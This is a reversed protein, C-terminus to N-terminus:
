LVSGLNHLLQKLLTGVAWPDDHQFTESRMEGRNADVLVPRPRCLLDNITGGRSLFVNNESLM